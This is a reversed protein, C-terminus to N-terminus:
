TLEAPRVVTLPNPRRGSLRTGTAGILVGYRAVAAKGEAIRTEMGDCSSNDSRGAVVLDNQENGLIFCGITRLVAIPQSAIDKLPFPRGVMKCLVSHKSSRSVTLFYVCEITAVM